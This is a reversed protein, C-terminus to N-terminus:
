RALEGSDSFIRRESHRSECSESRKDSFCLAENCNDSKRLKTLISPITRDEGISM